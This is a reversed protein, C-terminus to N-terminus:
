ALPRMGATLPRRAPGTLERILAIFAAIDFPKRLVPIGRARLWAASQPHGTVVVVPLDEAGPRSCLCALVEQGDIFPMALDLVVVSPDRDLEDLKALGEAGNEATVIAYGEDELLERYTGRMAADDDIILASRHERDM